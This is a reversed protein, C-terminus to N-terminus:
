FPLEEQVPRTAREREAIIHRALADQMKKANGRLMAKKGILDSILRNLDAYTKATYANLSDRVVSEPTLNHAHAYAENKRIWYEILSAPTTPVDDIPHTYPIQTVTPQPGADTTTTM